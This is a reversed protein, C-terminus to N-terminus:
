TKMVEFIAIGIYALAILACVLKVIRTM